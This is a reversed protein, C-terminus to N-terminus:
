SSHRGRALLAMLRAREALHVRQQDKRAQLVARADSTDRGQACLESIRRRQEAVDKDAKIVKQKVAALARKLTNRDM